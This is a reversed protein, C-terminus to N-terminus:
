CKSLIYMYRYIYIKGFNIFFVSFTSLRKGIKLSTIGCLFRWTQLANGIVEVLGKLFFYCWGYAFDDSSYFFSIPLLFLIWTLIFFMQENFCVMLLTFFCSEPDSFANALHTTTQIYVSNRHISLFNNFVWCFFVAFFFKFM